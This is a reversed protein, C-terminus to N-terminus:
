HFLMCRVVLFPFLKRPWADYGSGNASTSVLITIPALVKATISASVITNYLLCPVSM